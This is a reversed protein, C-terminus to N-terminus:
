PLYNSNKFFSEVVSFSGFVLYEKKKDIERFPEHSIDLKDLIDELKAIDVARKNDIDIILVEKIIPKLIELVSKFDKDEYSNYVLYIKKGKFHELLAKAALPNHGVDITINKAIKQARGFLRIDDFYKFEIDIDLYKLATLALSLNKEFVKPLHLRDVVEKAEDFEIYELFKAGKKDCIDKAVSKVSDYNQFGLILAKQIANLKTRAIKDISDGLFSEHDYGITTALTLINEFVATADYEGGLGAELVIFDSEQFIYIALLTTYEFYSLANLDSRDLINQLYQHAIELREDDVDKGDIWIRENFKLLHPSSYHGVKYGGKYLHWALFRGTSGKGNTGVIHIIKPLAFSDKIKSWIRPMRDYDIEKYFLPKNKLFKDLDTM